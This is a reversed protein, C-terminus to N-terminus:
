ETEFELDRRAASLAHQQAVGLAAAHRAPGIMM